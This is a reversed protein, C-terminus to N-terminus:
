DLLFENVIKKFENKPMHVCNDKVKNREAILNKKIQDYEKIINTFSDFREKKTMGCIYQPDVNKPLANEDVKKGAQILKISKQIKQLKDAADEEQELLGNKKFYDLASNYENELEKIKNLLPDDALKISANKMLVNENEKKEVIKNNNEKSKNNIQDSPELPKNEVETIEKIVKEKVENLKENEKSEEEEDGEPVEQQLETNIIDIRKKIRQEIIKKEDANLNNDNVMNELLQKELTLQTGIKAKYAEITLAGEIILNQIKQIEGDLLDKKITFTDYNLNQKKKYEVIEDIVTKEDELVGACYMKERAHYLKESREKYLDNKLKEDEEELPAQLDKFSGKGKNM